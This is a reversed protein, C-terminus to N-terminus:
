PGEVEVVPPDVTTPDATFSSDRPPAVRGCLKRVASGFQRTSGGESVIRLMQEADAVQVGALLTVPTEAFSQPAMPTSAGLLVVERASGALDLLQDLTHNIIAIGTLIAVDCNPLVAAVDEAPRVETDPVRKIELVDLHAAARRLWRLLPTRDHLSRKVVAKLQRPPQRVGTQGSSSAM